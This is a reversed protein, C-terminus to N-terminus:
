RTASVRPEGLRMHQRHVVLHVAHPLHQYMVNLWGHHNVPVGVQDQGCDGFRAEVRDQANVWASGKGAAGASWKGPRCCHVQVTKEARFM